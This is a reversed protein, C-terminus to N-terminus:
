NIRKLKWSSFTNLKSKKKKGVENLHFLLIM